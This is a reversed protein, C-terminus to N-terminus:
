LLTHVHAIFDFYNNRIILLSDFHRRPYSQENAAAAIGNVVIHPKTEELLNKIADPNNESTLVSKCNFETTLASLREKNSHATLGCIQFDDGMNRVIELTSTGISGTCGLVLIRKM